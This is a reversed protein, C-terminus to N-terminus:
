ISNGTLNAMLQRTLAADAHLVHPVHLEFTPAQEDLSAYVDAVERVVERMQVRTLTLEGGQSVTHALYEGILARMRRSADRARRLAMRGCVPDADRLEEDAADMWGALATLPGKLDHAVTGAFGELEHRRKEEATVDKVLVLTLSDTGLTVERSTIALRARGKGARELSVEASAIRGAGPHVM